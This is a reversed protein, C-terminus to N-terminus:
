RGFGLTGNRYREHGTAPCPCQWGYLSVGYIIPRNTFPRKWYVIRSAWLDGGSGWALLAMRKPSVLYGLMREVKVLTYTRPGQLMM